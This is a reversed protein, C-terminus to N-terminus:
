RSPLYTAFTEKEGAPQTWEMQDGQVFEQETELVAQIKEHALVIVLPQKTKNKGFSIFEIKREKSPATLSVTQLILPETSSKEPM